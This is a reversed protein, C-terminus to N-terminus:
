GLVSINNKIFLVERISQFNEEEVGFRDVFMRIMKQERSRLLGDMMALELMNAVVCLKQEKSLQALVTSLEDPTHAKHFALATKLIETNEGAIRQIFREEESDIAGDIKALHMLAALLGVLPPLGDQCKEDTAKSDAPSPRLSQTQTTAGAPSTGMRGSDEANAPPPHSTQPQGGANILDVLASVDKKEFASFKFSWHEDKIALSLCVNFKEESIAARVADEAFRAETRAYSEEGAKRSFLALRDPLAVIYGEGPEGSLAGCTRLASLPKGSANNDFETKIRHPLM